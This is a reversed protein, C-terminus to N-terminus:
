ASTSRQDRISQPEEGRNIIDVAFVAIVRGDWLIDVMRDEANPESIVKVASGEPILVATRQRDVSYIGLISSKLQLVRGTLM